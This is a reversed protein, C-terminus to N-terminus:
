RKPHGGFGGRRAYGRDEEARHLNNSKCQPCESPRPAGYPSEWTHGCESSRFMRGAMIYDGGEIKLAKGAVLCEAIKRHAEQLIRGFTQRLFLYKGAVLALQFPKLLVIFYVYQLKYLRNRPEPPQLIPHGIRLAKM